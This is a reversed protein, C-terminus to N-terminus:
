KASQTPDGFRKALFLIDDESKAQEVLSGKAEDFFWTDYKSPNSAPRSTGRLVIDGGEISRIVENALLPKHAIAEITAPRGAVSTPTLTNAATASFSPLTVGADFSWIARKKHFGIIKIGSDGESVQDAGTQSGQPVGYQPAAANLGFPNAASAGYTQAYTALSPAGWRGAVAVGYHFNLFQTGVGATNIVGISNPFMLPTFSGQLMGLNTPLLVTFANPGVMQGNADVTPVLTAKAGFIRNNGAGGSIIDEGAKIAGAYVGSAPQAADPVGLIFRIDFLVSQLDFGTDRPAGIWGRYGATLSQQGGFGFPSRWALGGYLPNRWSIVSGALADLASRNWADLDGELGTAGAGLVRAEVQARDEALTAATVRRSQAADAAPLQIFGTDGILLDNGDGGDIRDNGSLFSDGRSAISVIWHLAVSRLDVPYDATLHQQMASFREAARAAVAAEVQSAMAATAPDHIALGYAVGPQFLVLTDGVVLDDGAGGDISDNGISVVHNTGTGELLGDALIQNLPRQAMTELKVTVAAQAVRGTMALDTIVSRMDSLADSLALAADISLSRLPGSGQVITRAADGVIFDDGEGGTITDNGYTITRSPGGQLLDVGRSLTAFVGLLDSVSASVKDIQGNLAAYATVDLTYTESSDGYITDNGAGGEIVDNGALVNNTGYLSPVLSAIVTLMAGDGRRIPDSGAIDPVVGAMSPYVEIRPTGAGFAGPLLNLAPVVVEGGLPLVLGTEAAAGILRVANVITPKDSAIESLNSARDGYILDDGAGGMLTDNGRQGFLVDNGDGGAIIDDDARALSVTLASTAWAGGATTLRTGSGDRAGVALVLDAQALTEALDATRAAASQADTAIAATVTGIEELVVDRHWTGDSNLVAAGDTTFARVIRGEDGLLYDVGTGGDIRDRGLGGVIEDSGEEGYILDDGMQGFIRDDGAGGAIADNGGVFDMLDFRLADRMVTDAFTGPNRQWTVSKVDDVLVNRTIVGNDGLIVDAGDGGNILDDGDAGGLVNHGGTIDDDGEGGSLMDDGQQGYLFDDGAGGEITDNGGGDTAATFISVARQNVPLARDYLMHDGFLVDHGGGGLIVDAGTGGAAYDNGDGAEIRDDGGALPDTAAVRRIVARGASLALDARGNDGLIMDAGMGTVIRDAGIGGLVLNDGNGAVIQDDGGASPDITELVVMVGGSFSARGQDGVISDNGTGTTIADGGLGGLVLNDGDGARITDGAGNLADLTTVSAIVGLEFRAEGSDGLVIDAGAGTDITDSGFGGLVLNDGEGARITDDGGLATDISVAQALGDADRRVLGSDGLIVDRGSGTEIVDADMGGIVINAGEGAKIADRGGIGADLSRAQVLRGGAYLVEGSDGLIVDAGIETTITDAGFGGLVLNDGAGAEIIDDGGLGTDTSLIQALLGAADYSVSGFDGLIVDAGKASTITDAEAGGLALNDGDGLNLTDKGGDTPATTAVRVRVGGAFVAVGNDGLVIDSGGLTTITDVGFGGLVLNDGAGAEIADDGGVATDLSEAREVLGKADFRVQGADGFVTDRGSGTVITDGGGGGLVVNDGEGARIEDADGVGANTTRVFVPVLAALTVAGNDGLIVDSGSGTTITDAGVGGIVVSGGDGVVITDRGGVEPATSTIEVPRASADLDVSGNDGLVVSRGTGLTLRDAGSGGLVVGNGAGLTVTDDGAVAVDTSEVRVPSGNVLRVLGADGLVVADGSGGDILDGGAGGLILKRGSGLKITDAAGLAPTLSQTLTLVGAAYDLGGSDGLVTKAGDGATITDSGFGGLVIDSGDGATITDDGGLGTDTSLVQQLLGAADYSVSGFDGLIVDADKGTTITDAEAGGLALNDGDGAAITDTGGIEVDTTRVLIRKGDTRFTALGNDGLVVDAGSGATITDSGFGGLIVNDGDGAVITDDDGRNPNLSAVRVLRGGTFSAEGFDGLILDAGKGTTIEDRGVGGFVINDGDGGRIVDGAGRREDTTYVERVLGNEFTVVGMDGLVIDAGSGTTIDDSGASGIVINDGDGAKIVDRAGDDPDTSAFAVRVGGEFLATGNDGLIVDNGGLTTITDTGAGGIVVNDGGGAEIVDDDGFTPDLSEARKLRGQADFTLRGDDGLVIDADADDRGADITDAGLGGLVIDAGAGSRLVDRTGGDRSSQIVARIGLEFRVLGNDGLVIDGGNGTVVTDSGSGGLVINEGDGAEIRDNGADTTDTSAFAVRVGAEFVAYGHDGIVIDNGGLATVVDNGAGGIVLNDGGGVKIEDDGGFGVDLTEARTVRGQADFTIQGDDGFVVDADADAQGADITDAGLGGLVVDAGAGTTIVDRAGGNRDSVIRARIGLEFTALGNDGLVIDAGAGTTITDTGSGGLVVNDGDGADIRDNGGDGTETSAVEVRIGAAFLAYGQDGLVIDRGGLATIVDAGTGGIVLNDGGGVDITDDDGFGPDLSEARKVRGQADFTIQGDDGFVIDADTDLRGADITDAGLGGLVVDAGAGTAIVDRAGGNRDSVVRARIGLEYAVLGNDGLVIDGGAGTTVTDSGSGGIVLNDGDGAEIRDNGGDATDTSAFEIRVGAEFVAYGNDGIVIDGGGLATITDAGTGGIVLNDGGGVKIEDNGGFGADFSEARIVGGTADFTVHGNDGFVIDADADAQGADITDGGLGGLVLDAGAGTTITDSAGGIRDSVIELRIGDAFRITGNDGLVIDAGAGTTITDTGSGGLVVNDGDGVAIRDNGAGTADASVFVVRVGAEFEAYGGDGIVADNGDLASVVDSGAGAIVVNDGAGVDITDNGGFGLDFSEARKVRGSAEFTARGDDGLVVDNGGLATIRDAGTGGVVINDGGGVDISDDDGLGFDLSEARKVRGQGDFTVHGNDGFVIDADADNKGADITDAGLGGLVLDAGAGTTITDGAGGDRDSTLELRIGGSFTVAGNDGLVVDAGSGTTITDSGAGGLVINNGSGAEISDDGGSTPDISQALKVRGLEDFTVHGNDGFVIDDDTDDKGADITDGGLGGIM